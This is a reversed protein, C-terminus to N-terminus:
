PRSRDTEVSGALAAAYGPADPSWSRYANLGAEEQVWLRGCQACEAVSLRSRREHVGLIDSVVSEDGVDLPYEPSFYAEIWVDRRGERAATFFAAVDRAVGDRFADQDLDRLLWAETPSPIVHDRITAGCRCSLKSM